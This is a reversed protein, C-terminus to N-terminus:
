GIEGITKKSWSAQNPAWVESFIIWIVKDIGLLDFGLYPANMKVGQDGADAWKTIQPISTKEKARDVIENKIM